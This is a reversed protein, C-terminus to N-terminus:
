SLRRGGTTAAAVVAELPGRRGLAAVVAGVGVLVLVHWVFTGPEEPPWVGPSRMVVHLTYLSLTMAGAGFLVAVFVVGPRPLVGVVLLCLGIVALASGITQALDFPTTSHPAVVLLWQWPGDAPVNGFMGTSIEDLVADPTGGAGALAGGVDDRSTLARSLLTASVALAAGGAALAAQLRRSRLDARGVALGALLYALWPVVPYYGTFLLESLLQGPHALQGVTPNEFGRDPLHPRLWWSLLPAVVVWGAALWALTRARLGVFPLGLLFLVGYYTLIVAIGTDLAGLALGLFAILVARGALAVSRRGRERGRVPRRGGTMLALTVGALTAFLASARGGALWHGFALEGSPTREALVHTAVM